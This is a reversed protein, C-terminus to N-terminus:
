SNSLTIIFSNDRRYSFCTHKLQNPECVYLPSQPDRTMVPLQSVEDIGTLVLSRYVIYTLQAADEDDENDETATLVSEVYCSQGSRIVIVMGSQVQQYKVTLSTGALCYNAVNAAVGCAVLAEVHEREPLKGGPKVADKTPIDSGPRTVLTLMRRLLFM